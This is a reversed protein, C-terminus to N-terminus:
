LRIEDVTKKVSQFSREFMAKEEATLDLQHVKEVGGAGITVPVGMYYGSVGYEGELLAACPLVRKKDRLYSEAMLIASTAPAYFASGTKLLAVIEGGGKRTRDIIAELREKSIMKELPIGGVSCFRTVPVMDDGHGGLVLAHVDAISVGLEEAIFLRFRSTDLVGAMGVVRSKDFGTIQKM